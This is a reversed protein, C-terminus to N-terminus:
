KQFGMHGSGMQGNMAAGFMNQHNQSMAQHNSPHYENMQQHNQQMQEHYKAMQQSNQNMQSNMQEQIQPAMPQQNMAQGDPMTKAMTDQMNNGNVGNMPGTTNQKMGNVPMTVNSTDGDQQMTVTAKPAKTNESQMPANTMPLAYAAGVVSIGLVLTSVGTVLKKKSLM